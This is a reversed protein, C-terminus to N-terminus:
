GLSVEFEIERGRGKLIQGVMIPKVSKSQVAHRVYMLQVTRGLLNVFQQALSTREAMHHKQGSPVFLSILQAVTVQLAMIQFLGYNRSM